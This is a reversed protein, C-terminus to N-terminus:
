VGFIVRNWGRSSQTNPGYKHRKSGVAAARPLLCSCNGEETTGGHYLHFCSIFTGSPCLEANCQVNWGSLESSYSSTRIPQRIMFGIVTCLLWLHAIHFVRRQSFDTESCICWVPALHHSRVRFVHWRKSRCFSVFRAWHSEYVQPSSDRLALGEVFLPIPDEQSLDMLEPFWSAAQQLPVILIVRVGPSQVIKQLVQPVMKFPPFAYLLGRGNDWPVSMADTWEARTDPYPSVFKILQRNAFTAFDVQSEGWKAFVPRLREMAMTWETNLTQSVRSLSDAQINHVGPLHVPVLTIAKHDCWKLLRITMQMLAYSRTGGENKIYAVTVANNCMLRVVRSRLHPLFDRVANVVAQMELVNIHWSRQSASWQGQTSRSSLQAGWGSSSANTFLTVETEKTRAPSSSIGVLGGRVTGVSSSHDQWDLERDEPVMSHRGVVPGSSSPTKGTTGTFGHVGAHGTIQASRLSHHRPQDDLTSSPVPSPSADETPDGSHITSHQVADWHVPLGSKAHLRVERLKHDLRSVPACQHNDPCATAGTRSFRCPDALRSLLRTAKCRAAKLTSSTTLAQHVRLNINGIRLTPLHIPLSAHQGCIASVEPRSPADPCTSIRRPHRHVSDM